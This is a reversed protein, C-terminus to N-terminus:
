ERCFDASDKAANLIHDDMRTERDAMRTKSVGGSATSKNYIAHYPLMDSSSNIVPIDAVSVESKQRM